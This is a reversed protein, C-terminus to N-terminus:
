EVIEFDAAAVSLGGGIDDKFTFEIRYKGPNMEDTPVRKMMLLRDQLLENHNLSRALVSESSEWQSGRATIRTDVNLAPALTGQDLEYGYLEVYLQLDHGKRYAHNTNPLVKYGASFVFPDGVQDVSVKQIRQALFLSSTSLGRERSPLLLSFDGIGTKGSEVDQVVVTLKYRGVPVIVQKQTLADTAPQGGRRERSVETEFETVVEQGLSTVVGYVQVTAREVDPSLRKFGLEADSLRITVPVIFKEPDLAIFSYSLEFNLPSYTVRTTVLERLHEYEIRPPSQLAKLLQLREFPADKARPVRGPQNRLKEDLDGFSRTAIRERKDGGLLLEGETFGMPHMLLADKELEDRAFRYLNGGHLDVFEIDIDLGIGEIFNYHWVQFPNVLTTGGGEHRPRVYTSGAPHDEIDDPPGFKIYIMGRDTAWGPLGATFNENAYQIRRYHEEKFENSGSRRDLNRRDWFQEIFRDREADTQLNLFVEKEDPTILYVVDERLWKKFYNVSEEQQVQFAVATSGFWCLVCLLQIQRM